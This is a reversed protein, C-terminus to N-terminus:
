NDIMTCLFRGRTSKESSNASYYATESVGLRKLCFRVTKKRRCQQSVISLVESLPIERAIRISQACLNEAGFETFVPSVPEVEVIMPGYQLATEIRTTFYLWRWTDVTDVSYTKGIEYQYGGHGRGLADLGKYYNRKGRM